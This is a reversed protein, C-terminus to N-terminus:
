IPINTHFCSHSAADYKQNAVNRFLVNGWRWGLNDVGSTYFSVVNYQFPQLYRFLEFFGTHTDNGPHSHFECELVIFSINKGALMKEAGTLVNMEYGEVDIKLLGIQSIGEKECFHDLTDLSIRTTAAKADPMKNRMHGAVLKNTESLPVSTIPASTTKNGLAINIPKAM